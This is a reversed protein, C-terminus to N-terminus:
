KEIWKGLRQKVEEDSAFEGRDAQEARKRITEIVYLRYQVDEFTCDDPLQQVAELVQQKVSSM